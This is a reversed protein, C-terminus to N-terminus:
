YRLGVGFSLGHAFFDTTRFLQAPSTTSITPAAQLFTQGKPLNRDIQDTPRLVNSVYMFEYGLSISLWSTVAFSAKLQAEPIMSFRNGARRGENAPQAFVGEPGVSVPANFNYAIFGGWVNQVEHSYGIAVRTTLELALRGLSYRGRLGLIEGYFQNRTQFTDTVIGSQGTYRGSVGQIDSRLHFTESLDFYRFGVLGLIELAPSRYLSIVGQGEMSWLRLSNTIEIGGIIIGQDRSRDPDNPLSYPLSDEGPNITM